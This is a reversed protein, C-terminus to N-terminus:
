DRPSPSTYLLCAQPFAKNCSDCNYDRIGEHINSVHSKLHWSQSFLKGCEECKHEKQGGHVSGHVIKAHRILNSSFGSTFDCLDCKQNKHSKKKPSKLNKQVKVKQLKEQDLKDLIKSCDQLFYTKEETDSNIETEIPDEFESWDHNAGEDKVQTDTNLLETKDQLAGEEKCEIKVNEITIENEVETSKYDWPPLIDNLCIDYIRRLNPVSEPHIEFAHYVFDQKSDNKYSCSPCNFSQFEYISEIVDWSNELSISISNETETITM